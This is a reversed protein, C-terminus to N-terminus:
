VKQEERRPNQRAYATPRLGNFNAGAQDLSGLLREMFYIEHRGCEAKKLGVLQGVFAEGIYYLRGAWKIQGNSRVRRVLWGAPYRIEELQSRYGRACAEYCHAPMQQGLAEHPRQSNFHRRWQDFRVQQKRVSRAPPRTTQEKLTRHMREHSGNQEPHGPAIFEVKIGLRMWWVSLRSLGGAGRSGFPGGNDVRIVEPLGYRVFLGRFAKRTQAVSQSPLVEACLLYRSALDSVTLPDCRSGDLTRFWGKFDAAWVENPQHANRLANRPVLALSVGRRPRRARRVLGARGLMAGLTSAAPVGVKMGYQTVLRARIKKPGWFPYRERLAITREIWCSASQNPRRQPVRSREGLGELGESRFREWWKYGTRRSVSYERCLAAFSSEGKEVEMVFKTRQEMPLVEKWPMIGM